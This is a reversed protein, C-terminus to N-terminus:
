CDAILEPLFLSWCTNMAHFSPISIAEFVKFERDKRNISTIFPSAVVMETDVRLMNTQKEQLRLEQIFGRSKVNNVLFSMCYKAFNLIKKLFHM